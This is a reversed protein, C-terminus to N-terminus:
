HIKLQQNEGNKIQAKKEASHIEKRFHFLRNFASCIYKKILQWNKQM